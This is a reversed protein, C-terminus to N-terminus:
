TTSPPSYTGPRPWGRRRHVARGHRPCITQARVRHSSAHLPRSPQHHRDAQRSRRSRAHRLHESRTRHRSLNQQRLIGHHLHLGNRPARSGTSDNQPPITPPASSSIETPRQPPTPATPYNKRPSMAPHTPIAPPHRQVHPPHVPTPTQARAPYQATTLSILFAVSLLRFM